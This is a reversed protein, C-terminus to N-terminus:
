CRFAHITLRWHSIALRANTSNTTRNHIDSIMNRNPQQNQSKHKRLEKCVVTKVHRRCWYIQLFCFPEYCLVPLSSLHRVVLTSELLLCSFGYSMVQNYSRHKGRAKTSCSQILQIMTTRNIASLLTHLPISHSLILM